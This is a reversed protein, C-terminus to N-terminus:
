PNGVIHPHWGAHCVPKFVMPLLNIPCPGDQEFAFPKGFLSALVAALFACLCLTSRAADLLEDSGDEDNAAGKGVSDAALRVGGGAGRESCCPSGDRSGPRWGRGATQTCCRSGRGRGRGRVGTGSGLGLGTHRASGGFDGGSCGAAGAAWGNFAVVTTCQTTTQPAAQAVSQCAGASNSRGAAAAPRGSHLFLTGPQTPPGQLLVAPQGNQVYASRGPVFPAASVSAALSGPAPKPSLPAQGPGPGQGLMRGPATHTGLAPRPGGHSPGPPEAQLTMRDLTALLADPPDQPTDPTRGEGDRAAM